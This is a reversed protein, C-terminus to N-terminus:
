QFVNEKKSIGCYKICKHNTANEGVYKCLRPVVGGRCYKSEKAPM